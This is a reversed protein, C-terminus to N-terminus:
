TIANIVNHQDNPCHLIDHITLPYKDLKDDAKTREHDYERRPLVDVIVNYKGKIHLRNNDREIIDSTTEM